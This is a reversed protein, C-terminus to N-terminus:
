SGGDLSEWPGPAPDGTLDGGPGYQQRVADFAARASAAGEAGFYFDRLTALSRHGMVDGMVLSSVSASGLATGFTRRLAQVPRRPQPLGLAGYLGRVEEWLRRRFLRDSIIPADPPGWLLHDGRWALDQLLGGTEDDFMVLRDRASKQAPVLLLRGAANVDGAALASLEEVRLGCLLALRVSAQVWPRRKRVEALLAAAQQPAFAFPRPRAKPPPELADLPSVQVYGRRM